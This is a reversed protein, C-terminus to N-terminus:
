VPQGGNAIDGVAIERSRQPQHIKQLTRQQELALRADALGFHRLREGCHMARFQYAQLTVLTEILVGREVLPVVLALEEGYFRALSRACIGVSDFLVYKGFTIQQLPRQERRNSAVLGRYEKDIFHVAGVFLELSEQELQQRIELDADRLEASDLCSRDRAHYQRRVPRTFQGVRQTPAAEIM